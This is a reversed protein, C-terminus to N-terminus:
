ADPGAMTALWASFAALVPSLAHAPSVLYYAREGRLPRACAVVLEGSAMKPLWERKQEETAFNQIYHAVIGSHLSNGLGPCLMRGQESFIVIEHTFNGGGGGYEERIGPCLLGAAGAKYWVERDVVQQRGWREEHPLLETEYFRRASDRLTELEPDMWAPQRM